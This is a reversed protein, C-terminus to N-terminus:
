TATSEGAVVAKFWAHLSEIDGPLVEFGGTVCSQFQGNETTVLRGVVFNVAMHGKADLNEIALSFDSPAMAVVEAKGTLKHNLEELEALFANM